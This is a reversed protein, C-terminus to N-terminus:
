EEPAEPDAPHFRVVVEGEKIMGQEERATREIALPDSELSDGRQALSDTRAILSDLRDVLDEREAHMGRMDFVSYVGGFLAYYGALLLLGTVLGRFGWRRVRESM